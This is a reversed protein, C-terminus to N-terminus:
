SGWGGNGGVRVARYMASRTLWDVGAAEMAELFIDDAVKRLTRGRLLSRPITKGQTKYLYDHVVAARNWPGSAPILARWPRPVSAFDTEFGVPVEIRHPSAFSGVHYFLPDLLRHVVRGDRMLTVGDEDLVEEVRLGPADHLRAM